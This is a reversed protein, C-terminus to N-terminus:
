VAEKFYFALAMCAIGLCAFLVAADSDPNRYFKLVSMGINWLSYAFFLGAIFRAFDNPKM